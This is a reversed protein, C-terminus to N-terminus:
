RNLEIKKSSNAPITIKVEVYQKTGYLQSQSVEGASPTYTGQKMYFPVYVTAAKNWRNTLTATQTVQTGDNPLSYENQFSVTGAATDGNEYVPMSRDPGEYVYGNFKSSAPDKQFVRYGVWPKASLEISATTSYLIGDQETINDIHTHGHLSIDVNNQKMIDILEHSGEGHWQQDYKQGLIEAKILTSLDRPNHKADYEKWYDQVESDSSPWIDRDRWIPNHHSFLGKVQEPQATQANKALDDKIWNMQEDRIQGGWTPVSVTGHGQRDFKHWDFSNYGIMHAYPGYDFSFYQPGFYQEWYKAGDALTADQAYYDHNGPVIYVPVNFKKLIRYTEEYEYIYEQPNMQGFMLDGTMVVFDPKLLNVQRITKQLYLWRKSEDPNWMGAETANAPDQINRPSGVHIDTLHMFNFDKKFEDVVKVSNPEDDTIRTGDGTYSIKLDYLNESVEEPITVTVAYVSDSNKWYESSKQVSKVPLKFEGDVKANETPNLSVDWGAPNKGKTDVKVTLDTNKKKIAPTAMLPYIINEVKPDIAINPASDLYNTSNGIGGDQKDVSPIAFANGMPMVLSSAAALVVAKRKWNM